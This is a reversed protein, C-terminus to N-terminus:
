NLIRGGISFTSKSAVISVSIALVDRAISSLIPYNVSNVRWWLLIDFKTVFNSKAIKETNKTLYLDLETSLEPSGEDVVIAKSLESFPDEIMVDDVDDGLDWFNSGGGSGIALNQSGSTSGSASASGRLKYQTNYSETLSTLLDKVMEKMKVCKASDKGHLKEFCHIAFKM